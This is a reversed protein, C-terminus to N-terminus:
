SRGFELPWPALLLFSFFFIVFWHLHPGHCPAEQGAGHPWKAAAAASGEEAVVGTDGHHTLLLLTEV